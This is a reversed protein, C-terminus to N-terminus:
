GCVYTYIEELKIQEKAGLKGSGGFWECHLMSLFATQDVGRHAPLVSCM